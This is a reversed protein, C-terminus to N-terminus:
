TYRVLVPVAPSSRQKGLGRLLQSPNTRSEAGARPASRSPLPHDRVADAGLWGSSNVCCCFSPPSAPPSSFCSLLLKNRMTTRLRQITRGQIERLRM